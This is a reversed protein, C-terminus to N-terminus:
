VKIVWWLPWDSPFKKHILHRGSPAHWGGRRFSELGMKELEENTFLPKFLHEHKSLFEGAAQVVGLDKRICTWDHGTLLGGSKLKPVYNDLDCKVGEYSHDGDIFIFDLGNPIEAAADQSTKRIFKCKGFKFLEKKVLNYRDEREVYPDVAYLYTLNSCNKLVHITTDAKDIGIEVGCCGPQLFTNLLTVFLEKQKM